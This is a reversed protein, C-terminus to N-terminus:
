IRTLMKYGPRFAMKAFTVSNSELWTIREAIFSAEGAKANLHKADKRSLCEASFSFEATTFPMQNVLWENPNNNEFDASLAQPVTKLNIWRCELIHPQGSASHLCQLYLLKQLESLALRKILWDPASREERAVLNYGYTAGSSEIETRILPIELKAHRTRLTAVKTGSHRKRELIGDESLERLARNVTARAVGFEAALEVEGPITAGALYQQERLRRMLENKIFRYGSLAKLGS